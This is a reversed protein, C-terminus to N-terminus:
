VKNNFLDFFKDFFGQSIFKGSDEMPALSLIDVNDFTLPQRPQSPNVVAPAALGPYYGFGLLSTQSLKHSSIKWQGGSNGSICKFSDKSDVSYVRGIHRFWNTEPKGPTSRDFIIIDGVKITYLGKRVKDISFYTKNHELDAVIEVVGLRYGHPPVENPLLSEHLCFSAGAACWNGATFSKMSVEKGNVLRTCISFYERLRPSTFSNPKDEKVGLIMESEAFAVCREGLSLKPDKYKPGLFVM